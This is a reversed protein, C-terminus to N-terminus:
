AIFWKDPLGSHFDSETNTAPNGGVFRRFDDPEHLFAADAHLDDHGFGRLLKNAGEGEGREGSFFNDGSHKGRFITVGVNIGGDFVNCHGL